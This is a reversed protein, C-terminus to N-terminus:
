KSVWGAGFNKWDSPEEGDKACLQSVTLAAEVPSRTQKVTPAINQLKEVVQAM